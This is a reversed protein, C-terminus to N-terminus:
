VDVIHITWSQAYNTLDYNKTEIKLDAQKSPEAGDEVSLVKMGRLRLLLDSSFVDYIFLQNVNVEADCNDLVFKSADKKSLCLTPNSKIHVSGFSNHMAFIQRDNDEQCTRLKFRSGEDDSNAAVCLNKDGESRIMFSASAPFTDSIKSNSTTTIDWDQSGNSVDFDKTRMKLTVGRSPVVTGETSLVQMGKKRLALDSSFLDYVFMQQEEVGDSCSSLLFKSSTEQKSLCMTPSSAVLIAGKDNYPSVIQKSILESCARLKFTSGEGVKNAHVCLSDEVSSRINFENTFPSPVMSPVQSPADSASM